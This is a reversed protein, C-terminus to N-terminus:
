RDHYQAARLERFGFESGHSLMIAPFPGDGPPGYGWGWNPLSRRIIKLSM